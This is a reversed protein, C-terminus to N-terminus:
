FQLTGSKWDVVPLTPRMGTTLDLMPGVTITAIVHGTPTMDDTLQFASLLSNMDTIPVTVYNIVPNGNVYNTIIKAINSTPLYSNSGPTLPNFPLPPTLNPDPIILRAILASNNNQNAWNNWRQIELQAEPAPGGPTPSPNAALESALEIALDTAYDMKAQAVARHVAIVNQINQYQSKINILTHVVDYISTTAMSTLIVILTVAVVLEVLTFGKTKM